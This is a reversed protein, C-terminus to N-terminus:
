GEGEFEKNALWGHYKILEWLAEWILDNLGAVTAKTALITNICSKPKSWVFSRGKNHFFSFSQILLYSTELLWKILSRHEEIRVKNNHIRYWTFLKKKTIHFDNQKFFLLFSAEFDYYAWSSKFWILDIKDWKESKQRQFSKILEIDRTWNAGKRLSKQFINPM